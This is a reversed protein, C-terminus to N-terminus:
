SKKLRQSIVGDLSVRGAGSVVLSFLMFFYYFPVEFGNNSCSFGNALHVTKIAVVMVVMMPISIFRTALGLTLLVVGSVETSIAMFAQLTPFPLGLDEGFWRVISEFNNLKNIAPEYFGYALILRFILPPIDRLSAMVAIVKSLLLQIYKM